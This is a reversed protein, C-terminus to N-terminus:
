KIPVEIGHQRLLALAADREKEVEELRKRLREVEPEAKRVREQLHKALSDIVASM